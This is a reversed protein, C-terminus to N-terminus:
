RGSRTATSTSTGTARRDRGDRAYEDVDDVGSTTHMWGARENFGQYIFFQGWTSAGYANLGEDSTMQLESRFFFSTHPNILLLAHHDSPTRRRSPSATRARRSRTFRTRPGARHRRRRARAQRLVGAAAALTCRRSTAASAARRQVDAGDVARLAHHRAAEGGSAQVSLLEVRRGVRDM